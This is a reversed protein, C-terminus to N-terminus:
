DSRVRLSASSTLGAPADAGVVALLDALTRGPEHPFRDPLVEADRMRDLRFARFDQRMECWGALLWVPGIAGRLVLAEIERTFM